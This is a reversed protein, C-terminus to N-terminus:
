SNSIPNDAKPKKLFQSKESITGTQGIAVKIAILCILLLIGISTRGEGSKEIQHNDSKASSRASLFRLSM